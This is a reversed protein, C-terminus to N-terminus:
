NVATLVPTLPPVQFGHIRLWQNGRLLRSFSLTHEIDADPRFCQDIEDAGHMYESEKLNYFIYRSLQKKESETLSNVQRLITTKTRKSM